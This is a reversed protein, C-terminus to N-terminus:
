CCDSGRRTNFSSKTPLLADMVAASDETAEGLFIIAHTALEYISGMHRVQATKEEIDVQNICIGDAWIILQSKPDRIHRLASELTATIDFRKDDISIARRNNQDDWVYSLAIYHYVVNNDYELLTTTILSCQIPNSLESSPDLLILRFADPEVLKHHQYLEDPSM